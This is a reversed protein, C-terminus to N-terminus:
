AERQVLTEILSTASELYQENQYDFTIIKAENHQNRLWTLQRKAYNRTKQQALSLAEADNQEGALLAKIQPVGIAKSLPWDPAPRKALYEAVEAKSDEWIMSLRLDCRQYLAERDPLMKFIAFTEPAPHSPKGIQFDSISRGTQRKVELARRIRQGDAPAFSQASLPDEELLAQHAADTDLARVAQRVQDSISPIDDLGDILARVYFGTGGVIIPRKGRAQIDDIKAQALVSWRQANCVDNAALFGFLHHPAQSEEEPTPRATITRLDRYVQMSDANIIEGDLRKAVQIALTTKGSATPGMIIPIKGQSM